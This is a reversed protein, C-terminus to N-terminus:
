ETARENGYLIANDFEEEIAAITNLACIALILADEEIRCSKGAKACEHVKELRQAAEAYTM